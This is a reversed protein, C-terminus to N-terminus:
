RAAPQCAFLVSALGPSSTDDQWTVLANGAGDAVVNPWDSDGANNSLDFTAAPAADDALRALRVDRAADTTGPVAWAVWAGAADTGGTVDLALGDSAAAGAIRRPSTFTQGGDSTRSIWVADEIRWALWLNGPGHARAALTSVLGDAYPVEVVSRAPSFSTGGDISRTVVVGTTGAGSSSQAIWGVYLADGAASVVPSRASGCFAPRVQESLRAPASFTAGGDASRAAVIQFRNQYSCGALPEEVLEVWVLNLGGQSDYALLPGESRGASRSVDLPPSFTRGGDTSRSLYVDPRNALWCAGQWAPDVVDDVWALVIEDRGRTAVSVRAPTPSVRGAPEARRCAFDVNPLNDAVRAAPSFTRGGDTSRAVFIGAHNSPVDNAEQSWAVVVQGEGPAAAVPMSAAAGITAAPLDRHATLATPPAAPGAPALMESFLDGLWGGGGQWVLLM